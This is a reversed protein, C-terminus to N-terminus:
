SNLIPKLGQIGAIRFGEIVAKRGNGTVTASKLMDSCPGHSPDIALAQDLVGEAEDKQGIAYHLSALVYLSDPAAPKIKLAREIAEAAGKLDGAKGLMEATQLYIDAVENSLGDPSWEPTAARGFLPNM